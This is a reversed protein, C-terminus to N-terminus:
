PRWARRAWGRRSARLRGKRAREELSHGGHLLEREGEQGLEDDHGGDEGEGAMPHDALEHVVDLLEVPRDRLQEALSRSRRCSAAPTAKKRASSRPVAKKYKQGGKELLM